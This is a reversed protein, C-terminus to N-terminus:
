GERGAERRYLVDGDRLWVIEGGEDRFVDLTCGELYGDLVVLRDRGVLACAMPPMEPPLVDVKSGFLVVPRGEQWAVELHFYPHDYRGVYPALEAETTPLPPPRGPLELGLFARLIAPRLARILELGRDANTLVACAFSRGPVLTLNAWTGPTRGGHFLLREGSREDVHWTLGMGEGPEWISVHSRQMEALTGERLLREGETSTSAGLHFRAFSLLDAISSAVGGEADACRPLPWPRVVRAGGEELLHGTAFRYTMIWGPDVATRELGLPDLLLHRLAVHFPRGTVVEVVRGAVAIGSNAYSWVTGPEVIQPAGPMHEVFDALSAYAEEPWGFIDGPWGVQHTLLHRVTVRGSAEPDSTRFDPLYARVPADLEVRGGDVLRMVATGTYVKSISGLQFLTAETVPLPNEVSTVGLTVTRVDAGQLVGLAAGPVGVEDLQEEFQRTVSEFAADFHTV